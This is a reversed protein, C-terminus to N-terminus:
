RHALFAEAVLLDSPTTIKINERNGEVLHISVGNAEAVSADDTFNPEYEQEFAAKILDVKFCQPTQVLKYDNRSVTYSTNGEVKRITEYVGVVPVANGESEAGEFCRAITNSNVLPRVGDHIAVLGEESISDLGNKVSYFRESGGEVVRHPIQFSHQKCLREWKSLQNEPLVIITEISTDFDFFALISYMLIPKGNLEIFQKPTISGM